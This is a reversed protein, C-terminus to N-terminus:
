FQGAPGPQCGAPLDVGAISYSASFGKRQRVFIDTGPRRRQLAKSYPSSFRVRSTLITWADSRKTLKPSIGARNYLTVVIRARQCPL